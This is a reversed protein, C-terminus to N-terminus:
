NSYTRPNNSKFNKNRYLVWPGSKLIFDSNTSMKEFFSNPANRIIFYDYMGGHLRWTFDNPNVPSPLVVGPRYQVPMMANPFLTPNAGGGVIIHYYDADHNHSQNSICPDIISSSGNFILPLILRNKEMKSLIPMIETVEKSINTQTRISLFLLAASCVFIVIGTRM